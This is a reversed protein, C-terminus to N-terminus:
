KYKKELLDIIFETKVGVGYIENNLTEELNVNEFTEECEFSDLQLIELIRNTTYIEDRKDFLGKELGYCILKKISKEIM